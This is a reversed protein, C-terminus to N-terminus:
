GKLFGRPGGPKGMAVNAMKRNVRRMIFADLTEGIRWGDQAAKLKMVFDQELEVSFTGDDNRAQNEGALKGDKGKMMVGMSRLVEWADRSVKYTLIQKPNRPDFEQLATHQTM